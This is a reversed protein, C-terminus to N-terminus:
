GTPTSTPQPPAAGQQDREATLIVQLAQDCATWDASSRALSDLDAMASRVTAEDTIEVSAFQEWAPALDANAQAAHESLTAAAATVAQKSPPAIKKGRSSRVPAPLADHLYLDVAPAVAEAQYAMDYPRLQASFDRLTTIARVQTAVRARCGKASATDQYYAVTAIVTTWRTALASPNTDGDLGAVSQAVDRWQARCQQLARLETSAHARHAGCGSAILALAVALVVAARPSPRRNQRPM